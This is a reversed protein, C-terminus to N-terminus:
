AAAITDIILQVYPARAEESLHIGDPLMTFAGSDVLADWDAVKVNPYREPLSRILDNNADIYDIGPAHLTLMVVTRDVLLALIADLNEQRLPANTGIHIVVTDPLTGDDLHRQIANRTGEPGRGEKADLVFHAAELQATAGIM